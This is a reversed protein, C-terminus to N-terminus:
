GTQGLNAHAKPSANIPTNLVASTDEMQCDSIRCDLALQYSGYGTGGKPFAMADIAGSLRRAVVEITSAFQSPFAVAYLNNGLRAVIDEMRVMNKIMGGIQDYALQLIDASVADDENNDIRVLMMSTPLGALKDAAVVRRLHAYFFKQNYTGSASEICRDGGLNGFETKLRMNLRHYNALELIRGSIEQEGSGFPIIDTAGKAYALDHEAFTDGTLFLAPTHYLKSNRRMAASISLAPEPSGMMNLVVADFPNDHMFDFASYPTFAAIVDTDRKDLANIVVMFEPSAKGVFLVRFREAKAPTNFKYDIGFDERLTEIRVTIERQMAALRIMSTVRAAIQAPHAPPFIVSDFLADHTTMVKPVAGIFVPDSDKYRTKLISVISAAAELHNSMLVLIARPATRPAGKLASGDYHAIRADFGSQELQVGIFAAKDPNDTAILVFNHARLAAPTAPTSDNHNAIASM